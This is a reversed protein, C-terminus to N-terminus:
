NPSGLFTEAITEQRIKNFAIAQDIKMSELMKNEGKKRRM